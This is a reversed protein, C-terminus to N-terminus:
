IRPNRPRMIATCQKETAGLEWKKNRTDIDGSWIKKCRFQWCVRYCKRSKFKEVADNGINIQLAENEAAPRKKPRQPVFAHLSSTKMGTKENGFSWNPLALADAKPCQKVTKADSPPFSASGHSCCVPYRPDLSLSKDIQPLNRSGMKLAKGAKCAFTCAKTGPSKCIVQTCLKSSDAPSPEWFLSKTHLPDRFASEGHPTM